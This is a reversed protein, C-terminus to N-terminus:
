IEIKPIKCWQRISVCTGTRHIIKKQIPSGVSLVGHLWSEEEKDQEREDSRSLRGGVQPESYRGTCLQFTVCADEPFAVRLDPIVFSKDSEERWGGGCDLVCKEM